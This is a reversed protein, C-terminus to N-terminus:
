KKRKLEELVKTRSNGVKDIAEKVVKQTTNMKQALDRVEYPETRSVKSRDPVGRKTKDDPM